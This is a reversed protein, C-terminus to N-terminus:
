FLTGMCCFWPWDFRCCSKTTGHSCAIQYLFTNFAISNIGFRNYNINLMGNSTSYNLKQFLVMSTLRSLNNNGIGFGEVISSKRRISSGSQSRSSTSVNDSANVEQGFEAGMVGMLIVATSQKRRLESISSPKRLCLDSLHFFFQFNDTIDHM